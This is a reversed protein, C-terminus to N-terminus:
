PTRTIRVHYGLLLLVVLFLALGGLVWVWYPINM